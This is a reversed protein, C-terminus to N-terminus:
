LIASYMLLSECKKPLWQQPINLLFMDVLRIEVGVIGIVSEEGICSPGHASQPSKSVSTPLGVTDLPSESRQM